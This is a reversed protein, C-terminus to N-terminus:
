KREGIMKIKGKLAKNSHHQMQWKIEYDPAGGPNKLPLSWIELFFSM